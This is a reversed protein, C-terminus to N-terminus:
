AWNLKRKEVHCFGRRLNFKLKLKFIYKIDTVCLESILVAGDTEPDVVEANQKLYM